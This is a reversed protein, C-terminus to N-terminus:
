LKVKHEHDTSVNLLIGITQRDTRVLRTLAALLVKERRRRTECNDLGVLWSNDGHVQRHLAAALFANIM